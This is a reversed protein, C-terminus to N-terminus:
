QVVTFEGGAKTIAEQATKSFRQASVNLKKTLTGTGLIKVDLAAASILGVKKLAALDVTAGAEFKEELSKLNVVEPKAYQSTFGRLKPMSQMQQKFGRIQLGGRGGSRSRQGKMGRGSYTGRKGGRGVIKRASTSGEAPQLNDLTISM